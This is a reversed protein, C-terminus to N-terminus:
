ENLYAGIYMYINYTYIRLHGSQGGVLCALVSRKPFGGQAEALFM